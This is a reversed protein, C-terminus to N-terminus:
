PFYKLLENNVYFILSYTIKYCKLIKERFVIYLWSLYFVSIGLDTVSEIFCMLVLGYLILIDTFAQTIVIVTSSKNFYSTRLIYNIEVTSTKQM